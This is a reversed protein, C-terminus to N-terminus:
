RRLDALSDCSQNTHIWDCCARFCHAALSEALERTDSWDHGFSNNNGHITRSRAKYIEEVAKGATKGSKTLADGAAVGLRANILDCIGKQENGDALADLCAAYKVVAMLQSQELCASRFWWLAQILAQNINPRTTNALPQVFATLAEGIPSCLWEGNEWGDRWEDTIFHGKIGSTQTNSSILARQSFSISHKLYLPGDYLLGM